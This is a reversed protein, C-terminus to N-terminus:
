CTSPAGPFNSRGAWVPTSDPAISVKALRCLYKSLTQHDQRGEVGANRMIERDAGRSAM